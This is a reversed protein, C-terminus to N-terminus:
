PNCTFTIFLDLKGYQQVIGMADQYLQYQYRAGGTFSSPLIVTKRIQSGDIDGATNDM